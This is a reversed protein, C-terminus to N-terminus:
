SQGALAQSGGDLLSEALVRRWRNALIQGTKAIGFDQQARKRAALGMGRSLLVNTLLETVRLALLETNRPPVLFGTQGDLVIESTGGVNTAVVPIGCAAAELLVRGFPEQHAPHVLLTIEALIRPVDDRWGLRHLRGALGQKEFSDMLSREFTISEEKMSSREGVLVFHVDPIARVIDPAASALVDQGKRLGIQGITAILPASRNLRLEDHLWGTAAQPQFEALDIGNRVVVVRAADLGGVVHFDRTAQSVAMLCRNRNLDAIAARSLKLIDRLHTTTPIALRDVIRGVLRGMALSNAHLLDAQTQAVAEILSSEIADHSSRVRNGSDATVSWPIIEIKREALAQNLRGSSPGIAVFEIDSDPIRLWDLCALMSREGGNLTSYEFLLAVRYRKKPTPMRAM